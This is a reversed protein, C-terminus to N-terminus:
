GGRVVFEPASASNAPMEASKVARFWELAAFATTIGDPTGAFHEVAVKLPSADLVARIRRRDLELRAIEVLERVPVEIGALANVEDIAIVRRM